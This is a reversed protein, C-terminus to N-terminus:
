GHGYLEAGPHRERWAFWFQPPPGASALRAGRHPGDLALGTTIAWRSGGAHLDGTEGREFRLTRGDVRRDYAVMSGSLTSVSRGPGAAVVVPTRGVTDNIVGRERVIPFPYARATGGSRIGIVSTKPHIRADAASRGAGPAGVRESAYYAGYRDRNYNFTRDDVSGSRPPPLLVRAGPHQERWTDLRTM